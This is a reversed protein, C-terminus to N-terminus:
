HYIQYHMILSLKLFFFFHVRLRQSSSSAGNKTAKVILGLSFYNQLSM